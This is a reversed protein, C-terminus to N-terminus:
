KRDLFYDGEGDWLFQSITGSGSDYMQIGAYRQYPSLANM